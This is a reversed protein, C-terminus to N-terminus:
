LHHTAPYQTQHHISLVMIKLSEGITPMHSTSYLPTDTTSPSAAPTLDTIDM